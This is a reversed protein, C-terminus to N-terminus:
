HRRITGDDDVEVTEVPIVDSGIGRGRDPTARRAASTIRFADARTPDVQYGLDALSMVTTRSLPSTGSTLWGTM